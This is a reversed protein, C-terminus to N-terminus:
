LTDKINQYAVASYSGISNRKPNIRVVRANTLDLELGDLMVGFKLKKGDVVAFIGEKTVEVHNVPKLDDGVINVLLGQKEIASEAIISDVKITGGDINKNVKITDWGVNSQGKVYGVDSLYVQKVEDTPTQTIDSAYAATMTPLVMMKAVAMSTGKKMNKSNHKM